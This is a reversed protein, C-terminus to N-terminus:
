PQSPDYGKLGKRVRLFVEHAADEAADTSGLLYLCLRFVRRRYAQYLDTFDQRSADQIDVNAFMNVTAKTLVFWCRFFKPFHKLRHRRTMQLRLSVPIVGFCRMWGQPKLGPEM